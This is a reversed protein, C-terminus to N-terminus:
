ATPGSPGLSSEPSHDGKCPVTSPDARVYIGCTGKGCWCCSEDPAVLGEAIQSEPHRKNWCAVCIPHTWRSM